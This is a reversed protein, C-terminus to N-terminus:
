DDNPFILNTTAMKNEQTASDDGKKEKKRMKQNQGRPSLGQKQIMEEQEQMMPDPEKPFLAFVDRLSDDVEEDDEEVTDLFSEVINKDSSTIDIDSTDHFYEENEKDPLYTGHVERGDVQNEQLPGLDVVLQIGRAQICATDTTM